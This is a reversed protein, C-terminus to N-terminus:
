SFQEGGRAAQLIRDALGGPQTPGSLDVGDMAAPLGWLIMNLHSGYDSSVEGTDKDRRTGGAYSWIYGQKIITDYHRRVLELGFDREGEYMYAMALFPLYCTIVSYTGYGVKQVPTGDPNAFNTAGYKTLAVNTQKITELTTKVRDSRFVGALGQARAMWEGDLQYALILDSKKGTTPEYYNLYYRGTWLKNELSSSGQAFWRRCRGAFEKDGMKEAMREAMRLQALHLGAVHVTMGHFECMEMWDTGYGEAFGLARAGEAEDSVSIIGDAGLDPRLNMTYITTKKVSEYFEKLIEDDGTCLWQRDIIGAYQPPNTTLEWGRFPNVMGCPPTNSSCGSFMIPPAGDPFQYAKFARLTSLALKPFFYVIPINGLFTPPMCEIQPCYKPSENMGFLGDEKRCWDGIPPEAVAWLSNETILNLINILSDQLWGPFKEHTYIVQQWALIRKLLSEHNEAL